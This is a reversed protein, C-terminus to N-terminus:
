KLTALYAVVDDLQRADLMPQGRRSTAVRELGETASYSPMITEPNFRRPAVLRLRLEEAGFRAGVGALSPGLTGAHVGEVGPVAHCLICLGSSRSAAIEAGRRVAADDARPQAAAPSAPSALAALAVLAITPRM